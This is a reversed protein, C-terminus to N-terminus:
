TRLSGPSRLVRAAIRETLLRDCRISGRGDAGLRRAGADGGPRRRRLTQLRGPARRRDRGSLSSRGPEPCGGDRGRADAATASLPRASPRRVEAARRGLPRSRRARRCPRGRAPARKSRTSTRCTSSCCDTSLGTTSDTASGSELWDLLPDAGDGWAAARVGRVDDAPPTRCDRARGRLACQLAAVQRCRDARCRWWLRRSASASARGAETVARASQVAEPELAQRRDPSGRGARDAQPRAGPERPADSRTSRRMCSCCARGSRGRRGRDACRLTSRGLSPARRCSRRPRSPRPPM